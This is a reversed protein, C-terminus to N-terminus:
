NQRLATHCDILQVQRTDRVLKALSIQEPLMELDAMLNDIDFQAANICHRLYAARLHLAARRLQVRLWAVPGLRTPTVIAGFTATLAMDGAAWHAAAVGLMISLLLWAVFDFASAARRTRRTALDALMQDRAVDIGSIRYSEPTNM